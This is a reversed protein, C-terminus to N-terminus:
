TAKTGKLRFCSRLRKKKKGKKVKIDRLLEPWKNTTTGFNDISDGAKYIENVTRNGFGLITGSVFLSMFFM